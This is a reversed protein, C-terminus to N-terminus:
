RLLTVSGTRLVENQGAVLQITIVYTYVGVPSPKGKYTGDWPYTGDHVKEGWRDFVEFSLLTAGAQMYVFFYDNVGDGNPSFVNPIFYNQEPLVVVTQSTTDACGLQNYAILIVNYKGYNIFNFFTNTDGSTGVSSNSDGALVFNWLYNYAHQSQNTFSILTEPLQIETASPTFDALANPVITILNDLTTDFICEPSLAVRFMVTYNGSLTYVHCPSQAQSTDGDGFNWIYGINDGVAASTFCVQAGTCAIFTDATLAPHPPNDTVSVTDTATTDCGSESINLTVQHTGPKLWNVTFPGAGSDASAAGGHFDWNYISANGGNGTYTVNANQGICVPGSVTFSTGPYNYVAVTVTDVSLCESDSGTVSYTTTALPTAIVTGSTSDNLSSGQSWEYSTCNLATLTASKGQCISTYTALQMGLYPKVTVLETDPASFCAGATVQLVITKTGATLWSINLPGQGTLPRGTGGDFNWTFTYYNPANGTYIIHSNTYICVPSPATFTATPQEHVQV